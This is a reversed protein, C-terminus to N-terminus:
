KIQRPTFLSTMGNRTLFSVSSLSRKNRVTRTRRRSRRRGAGSSGRRCSGRSRSARSQAAGARGCDVPNRRGSGPRNRSLALHCQLALMEAYGAQVEKGGDHNVPVRKVEAMSDRLALAVSEANGRLERRVDRRESPRMDQERAFISPRSRHRVRRVTDNLTGPPGLDEVLPHVGLEVPQVRGDISCRPDGVDRM